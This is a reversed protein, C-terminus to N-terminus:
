SDRKCQPKSCSEGSVTGHALDLVMDKGQGVHITSVTRHPLRGERSIEGLSLELKDSGPKM